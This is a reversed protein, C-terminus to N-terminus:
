QFIGRTVLPYNNGIYGEAFSPGGNDSQHVWLTNAWMAKSKLAAVMEGVVGDMQSQSCKLLELM